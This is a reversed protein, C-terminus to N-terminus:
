LEAKNAGKDSAARRTFIKDSWEDYEATFYFMGVPDGFNNQMAYKKASWKGRHPASAETHDFHSSIQPKPLFTITFHLFILKRQM